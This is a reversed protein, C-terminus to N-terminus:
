GASIPFSDVGPGDMWAFETTMELDTVLEAPLVSEHDLEPLTLGDAELQASLEDRLGRLVDSSYLELLAGKSADRLRSVANPSVGFADHAVAWHRVADVEPRNILTVLYAADLSHVFNAGFSNVQQGQDIAQSPSLWTTHRAREEGPIYFPLPHSNM